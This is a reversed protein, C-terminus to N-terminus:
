ILAAVPKKVEFILRWMLQQRQCKGHPLLSFMHSFYYKNIERGYQDMTGAGIYNAQWFRKLPFASFILFKQM